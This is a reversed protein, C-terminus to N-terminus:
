ATYIDAFEPASLVKLAYPCTPLVKLGKARAHEAGALVLKRALGQGAYAQSTETHDINMRGDPEMRYTMHGAETTGDMLRFVGKAAAEEHKMEM